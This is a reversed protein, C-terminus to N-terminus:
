KVGAPQLRLMKPGRDPSHLSPKALIKKTRDYVELMPAEVEQRSQSIEQSLEGINENLEKEKEVLEARQRELDTVRHTIKEEAITATQRADDIKILIAIQEDEKENLQSVLNAIENELAQYEENKKVELQKNKQRVIQEGLSAIEGDLTNNRTELTKLENTAIAISEKEVDISRDLAAIAKPLNQLENELSKSRRDRSHLLLLNKFEANNSLM